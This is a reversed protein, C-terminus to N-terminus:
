ASPSTAASEDNEENLSIGCFREFFVFLDDDSQAHANNDVYDTAGEDAEEASPKTIALGSRAGLTKHELLMMLASPRSHFYDFLQPMVKHRWVSAFAAKADTEEMEGLKRNSPLYYQGLIYDPGLFLGIGRNIKALVAAAIKGVNHKSDKAGAAAELHAPTPRLQVVYFRRRIAADLPAVSKDVSNMSALTYIGHPMQFERSVNVGPSIEITQGESFYPLTITITTKTPTGDHALRKDAEMLSIFEGFIRATNGRNIEDILLLGKGQRCYASLEVLTGPTVELALTPAPGANSSKPRLGVIFDEYSYGQHFTVWRSTATIAPEESIASRELATDVALRSGSAGGSHKKKFLNEVEKMLHSKGTGPPGYLLVNTHQELLSLIDEPTMM